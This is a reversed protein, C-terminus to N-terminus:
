SVVRKLAQALDTGLRGGGVPIAALEGSSLTMIMSMTGSPLAEVVARAKARNMGPIRALMEARVLRRVDKFHTLGPKPTAKRPTLSAKKAAPPKRATSQPQPAPTINADGSTADGHVIDNDDAGILLPALWSGCTGCVLEESSPIPVHVLTPGHNGHAERSVRGAM